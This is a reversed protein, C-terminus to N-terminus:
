NNELSPWNFKEVIGLARICAINFPNAMLAGVSLLLRNPQPWKDLFSGMHDKHYYLACANLYVINFRNGAFSILKSQIEELDLEQPLVKPQQKCHAKWEASVGSKDCGRNTFAKCAVRVLQFPMFENTTFHFVPKHADSHMEKELKKLNKDTETAFNALLHLKCYFSNLKKLEAQQEATLKDWNEGHAIKLLTPRYSKM